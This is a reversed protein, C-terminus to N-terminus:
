ILARRVQKRQFVAECSNESEFVLKPKFDPENGSVAQVKQKKKSLTKQFFITQSIAEFEVVQKPPSSSNNISQYYLFYSYQIISPQSYIIQLGAEVEVALSIRKAGLDVLKSSLPNFRVIRTYNKRNHILLQQPFPPQPICQPIM